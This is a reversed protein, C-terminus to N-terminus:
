TKAPLHERCFERGDATVRFDIDPHSSETNGCAECRHLTEVPQNKKSQKQGQPKLRTPAGSFGAVGRKLIGLHSRLETNFFLLYNLFAAGLTAAVILPQGLASLIMIFASFLALWAIRVPLIFFVLVKFDPYVTAYALLLSLNLFTNARGISTGEGSLGFGFSVMTCLLIGCLYFSTLRAAGMATELGDGLYLLFLLSFFIWFPSLTEPIFIWTVLRWIEGRLVLAPNLELVSLYGPALLHLIFVLANFLVVYRILGPVACYESIRRLRDNLESRM